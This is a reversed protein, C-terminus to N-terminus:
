DSAPGDKRSLKYISATKPIDEMISEGVILGSAFLTGRRKCNDVDGEIDEPSRQAARARIKKDLIYGVIAGIILPTQVSPPLYIGMIVQPSIGLEALKSNEVEVYVKEEQEGLLEVKQVRPVGLLMRRTKEATQRMEEYSYGDGTVAYVSGYVDDFRDDYYPGYVGEPLDKKIDESFNRVDKWTDRIKSADVDDRLEVYIVSQGPRTESLLYDLGPVDQFRKELKDTVQQEVQDATAGPWAVSVVMERITFQPDEM